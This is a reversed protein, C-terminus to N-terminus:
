GIKALKRGPRQVGSQQGRYVRAGEQPAAAPQGPQSSVNTQQESAEIRRVLDELQAAVQDPTEAVEPVAPAPQAALPAAQQPAFRSGPRQIPNLM